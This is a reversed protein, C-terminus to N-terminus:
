AWIRWIVFVSGVMFVWAGSVEDKSALAYCLLGMLFAIITALVNLTTIM